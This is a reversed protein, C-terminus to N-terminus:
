AQQPIVVNLSEPVVAFTIGEKLQLPEGDVHARKALKKLHFQTGVITEMYRSKHISRNFLRLAVFPAMFLSFKRLICLRLQGDDIMAEPAITARNGYQSSNAVTVLFAKRRFSTDNVTFEYEQEEYKFYERLVIKFYSFFGRKGFRSFEDAILADFGVGAVGMFPRANLVGTDIAKVKFQNLGAIAEALNLPLQLHRALGNGSGTPIIALATSQGILAAGAENVSGDGGVIAVVDIGEDAAKRSLEIAHGSRETYVIEHEIQDHNLHTEVLQPIIKQRGVGSIPNVIFRVKLKSM